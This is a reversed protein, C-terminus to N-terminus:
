TRFCLLGRTATPSATAYDLDPCRIVVFPSRMALLRVRRPEGAAPLKESEKSAARFAVAVNWRFDVRDPTRPPVHLFFNQETVAAAPEFPTCGRLRIAIGVPPKGSRLDGVERGVYGDM